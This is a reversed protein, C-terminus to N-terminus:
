AYGLRGTPLAQGRRLRRTGTAGRRRLIVQEIRVRHELQLVRRPAALVRDELLVRLEDVILATTERRKAPRSSSVDAAFGTGISSTSGTSRIM